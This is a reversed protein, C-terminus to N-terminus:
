DRCNNHIIVNLGVSVQALTKTCETCDGVDAKQQDHVHANASHLILISVLAFSLLIHVSQGM